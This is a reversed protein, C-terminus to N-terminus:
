DLIECEQFDLKYFVEIFEDLYCFHDYVHFFVFLEIVDGMLKGIYLCM